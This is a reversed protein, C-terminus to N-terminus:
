REKKLLGEETRLRTKLKESNMEESADGLKPPHEWFLTFTECIPTFGEQAFQM